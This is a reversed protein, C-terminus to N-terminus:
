FTEKNSLYVNIKRDRYDEPLGDGWGYCEITLEKDEIFIIFGSEIADSNGIIIPDSYVARESPLDPHKVTLFYGNGTVYYDSIDPTNKIKEILESSFVHSLFIGIVVKEHDKLEM